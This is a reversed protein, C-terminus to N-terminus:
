ALEVWGIPQSEKRFHEGLLTQAPQDAVTLRPVRRGGRDTVEYVSANKVYRSRADFIAM